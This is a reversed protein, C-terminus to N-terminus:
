DLTNAITKKRGSKKRKRKYDSEKISREFNEKSKDIHIQINIMLLNHADHVDNEEFIRKGTVGYYIIDLALNEAVEDGFLKRCEEIDNKFTEFFMFDDHYMYM